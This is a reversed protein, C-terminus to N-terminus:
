IPEGLVVLDVDLCLLGNGIVDQYPQSGSNAYQTQEPSNFTIEVTIDSQFSDYSTANVTLTGKYPTPEPFSIELLVESGQAFDYVKTHISKIFKPTVKAERKVENVYDLLNITTQAEDGDPSLSNVDQHIIYVEKEQLPQTHDTASAAAILMNRM